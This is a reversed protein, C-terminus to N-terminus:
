GNSVIAYIIIFILFIVVVYMFWHVSLETTEYNGNNDNPHDDQDLLEGDIDIDTNNKAENNENSGNEEDPKIANHHDNDTTSDPETIKETSQIREFEHIYELFLGCGDFRQDRNKELAKNIINWLINSCCEIKKPPNNVHQQYIHFDNEGEFPVNGSLMEYLIAGMSYVDSRHDIAKPTQIQEPSMYWSTGLTTGTKTMRKGDATIAIGFDMIKATGDSSVLINSPKIDRHIIGKRHAYDLGKLVDQFISIAQNETLKGNKQILEDLSGGDVYEMVLFLRGRDEILTHIRVINDHVLKFHIKAEEIFRARFSKDHNLQSALMKIAFNGLYEHRALFVKGMGGDGIVSLIEYERVFRKSM